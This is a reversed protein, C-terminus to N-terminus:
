HQQDLLRDPQQQALLEEAAVLPPHEALEADQADGAAAAAAPAGDAAVPQQAAAAANAANAASDDHSHFLLQLLHPTTLLRKRSPLMLPYVDELFYYLHGVCIGLVDVVGNNGLVFSFSLLVWSCCLLWLLLCLPWDATLLRHQSAATCASSLLAASPLYPATFTFLGLFNM